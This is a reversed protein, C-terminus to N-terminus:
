GCRVVEVGAAREGDFGGSDAEEPGEVGDFGDEGHRDGVRERVADREEVEVLVCGTEDLVEPVGECEVFGTGRERWGEPGAGCECGHVWGAVEFGPEEPVVVVDAAATRFASEREPRQM